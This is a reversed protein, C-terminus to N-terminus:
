FEMFLMQERNKFGFNERLIDAFDPDAVGVNLQDLGANQCDIIAQDMLLKFSKAQQFKSMDKDIYLLAEAFMRVIGYSVVKSDTETVADTVVFKRKPIGYKGRLCKKWFEDIQKLDKQELARLIM